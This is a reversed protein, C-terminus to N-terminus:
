EEEIVEGECRKMFLPIEGCSPKVYGGSEMRGIDELDGVKIKRIKYLRGDQKGDKKQCKEMTMGIQCGRIRCFEPKWRCGKDRCIKKKM